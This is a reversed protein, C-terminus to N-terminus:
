YHKLKSETPLERDPQRKDSTLRSSMALKEAM